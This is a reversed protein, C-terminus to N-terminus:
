RELGGDQLMLLYLTELVGLDQTFYPNASSTLEAIIEAYQGAGNKTALASESLHILASRM